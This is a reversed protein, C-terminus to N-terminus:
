RDCLLLHLHLRHRHLDNHVHVSEHREGSRPDTPDSLADLRLDKLVFHREALQHLPDVCLCNLAYGHFDRRVLTRVCLCELLFYGVLIVFHRASEM